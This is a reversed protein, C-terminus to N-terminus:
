SSQNNNNLIYELLISAQNVIWKAETGPNSKELLVKVLYARAREIGNEETLMEIINDFDDKSIQDSM